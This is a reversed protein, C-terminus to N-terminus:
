LFDEKFIYMFGKSTPMLEYQELQLPSNNSSDQASAFQTDEQSEKTFYVMIVQGPAVSATFSTSAPGDFSSLPVGKLLQKFGSKRKSIRFGCRCIGDIAHQLINEHKLHEM